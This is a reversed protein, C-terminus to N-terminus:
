CIKRGACAYICLNIDSAYMHLLSGRYLGVHTFSVWLLSMCTYFLGVISVYMHLLSGCYLCVHTFSVWSLSRGMFLGVQARSHLEREEQVYM